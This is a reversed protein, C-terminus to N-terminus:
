NLPTSISRRGRGGKEFSPPRKGAQMYEEIAQLNNHYLVHESDAVHGGSMPSLIRCEGLQSISFDLETPKV